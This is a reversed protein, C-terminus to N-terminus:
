NERERREESLTDRERLFEEKGKKKEKEEGDRGDKVSRQSSKEM